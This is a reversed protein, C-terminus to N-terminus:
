SSAGIPNKHTCMAMLHNIVYNVDNSCYKRDTKTRDRLWQWIENDAQSPTNSCTVYARTRCFTICIMCHLLSTMFVKALVSAPWSSLSAWLIQLHVYIAMLLLAGVLKGFPIPDAHVSIYKVLYFHHACQHLHQNETSWVISLPLSWSKGRRNFARTGHQRTMCKVYAIFMQLGYSAPTNYWCAATCGHLWRHWACGHLAPAHHEQCACVFMCDRVYVLIYSTSTTRSRKIFGHTLTLARWRKILHLQGATSCNTWTWLLECRGMYPSSWSPLHIELLTSVHFLFSFSGM